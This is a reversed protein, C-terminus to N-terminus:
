IKSIGPRKVRNELIYLYQFDRVDKARIDYFHRFIKALM